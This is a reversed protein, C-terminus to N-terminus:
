RCLKEKCPVFMTNLHRGVQSGTPEIGYTFRLQEPAPLDLPWCKFNLSDEEEGDMEEASATADFPIKVQHSIERVNWTWLFFLGTRQNWLCNNPQCVDGPTPCIGEVQIQEGMSVMTNQLLLSEVGM